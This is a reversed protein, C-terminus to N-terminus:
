FKELQAQRVREGNAVSEFSGIEVEFPRVLNDHRKHFNRVKFVKEGYICEIQIGSAKVSVACQAVVRFMCDIM